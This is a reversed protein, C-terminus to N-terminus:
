IVREVPRTAAAPADAGANMAQLKRRIEAQLANGVALMIDPTDNMRKLLQGRPLHLVRAAETVTVDATAAGGHILTMEGVLAGPALTAVERGDARVSAAGAALYLLGGVEEGQSALAEGPAHDRWSGRRLVAHAEVLPLAPMHRALFERDEESFSIASRQWIRRGIGIVSIVIWSSQILASSLNWTELLSLLVLSAATLNLLTYSLSAGRLLGFQLAAYAGLYLLVGILGFLGTLSIATM